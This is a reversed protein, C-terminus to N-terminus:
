AYLALWARFLFMSQRSHTHVNHELYTYQKTTQLKGFLAEITAAPCVDDAGGASLMVPIHLRHAHSLTDVYGLRNWFQEAPVERYARRLIGYADGKLGSLPFATLFPLDACVCLVEEQLVSALLLSGGGGQSTGFLSLREPIVGPLQRAWRVAALCDMLWDRYGGPLGRATKDLVPWNGDEMLLEERIGRPSVYGLPSIHLINYGDDNIQPHMSIYGGYGPLNVLLPAPQKMAPQWYGYFTHGTGTEFRIFKNSLANPGNGFRHAIPIDDTFSGTIEQERSEHLLQEAWCDIQAKSPYLSFAEDVNCCLNESL